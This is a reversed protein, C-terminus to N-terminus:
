RPVFDSLRYKPDPAAAGKEKVSIASLVKEVSQKDLPKLKENCFYGHFRFTNESVGYDSMGQGGEYFFVVCNRNDVLFTAFKAGRFQGTDIPSQNAPMDKFKPYFSRFFSFSPTWEFFYNPALKLLMVLAHPGEADWEGLGMVYQRFTYAEDWGGDLHAVPADVSFAIPSEVPTMLKYNEAISTSVIVFYFLAGILFRM